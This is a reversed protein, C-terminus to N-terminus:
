TTLTSKQKTRENKERNERELYIESLEGGFGAAGQSASVLEAHVSHPRNRDGERGGEEGGFDILCRM